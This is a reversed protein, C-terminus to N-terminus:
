KQVFIISRRICRGHRGIEHNVSAVIGVSRESVRAAVSCLDHDEVLAQFIQEFSCVASGAIFPQDCEDARAAEWEALMTSDATNIWARMSLLQLHRTQNSKWVSGAM